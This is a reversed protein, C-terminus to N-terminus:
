GSFRMPPPKTILPIEQWSSITMVDNYNITIQIKKQFSGVTGVATIIKHYDDGTVTSTVSGNGITLTEGTYSPDRLLRLLANEAGSETIQHVIIGQQLDDTAQSNVVMMMISVTFIGIFIMIFIILTVLSQGSQLDIKRM